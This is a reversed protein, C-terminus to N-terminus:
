ETPLLWGLEGDGTGGFHSDVVVVEVSLGSEEPCIGLSIGATSFPPQREWVHQRNTQVGLIPGREWGRTTTM